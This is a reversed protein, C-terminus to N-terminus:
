SARAQRALRADQRAIRRRTQARMRAEDREAKANRADVDVGCARLEDDAMANAHQWAKSDFKTYFRWFSSGHATNLLDHRDSLAALGIIYKAQQEFTATSRNIIFGTLGEIDELAGWARQTRRAAIIRVNKAILDLLKQRQSM